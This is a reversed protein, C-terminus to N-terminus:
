KSSEAGGVIDLIEGTISAQRLKNHTLTLSDILEGANKTANDMAAMRSGHESAKADQSAQRVRSRMIRPLVARFVEKISPEFLTLGSAREQEGIEDQIFQASMPLLMDATLTQSIASKFKTYILHLEDISGDLFEQEAKMCEDELPWEDPSDSLDEYAQEYSMEQARFYEAPKKGFIVTEVAVGKAQQERLFQECKQNIRTNYPGALGRNAGLVILKVRKTHPKAETLPHTFDSGQQAAVLEALLKKLGDTYERSRKVADQAKGLKAASVLKMAYTIKKTSTVSKIRTKIEKLGGM